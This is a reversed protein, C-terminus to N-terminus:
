INPSKKQKNKTKLNKTSGSYAHELHEIFHGSTGSFAVGTNVTRCPQNVSSFERIQPSSSHQLDLDTYDQNEQDFVTVIVQYSKSKGLLENAQIAQVM